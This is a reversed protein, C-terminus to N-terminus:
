FLIGTRKLKSNKKVFMVELNIMSKCYSKPSMYSVELIDIIQFGLTDMLNAVELFLPAKENYQILQVELIVVETSLITDVGGLLILKEAGQVDIKIMDPQPLQYKKIVSSLKTMQLNRSECNEDFYLTSNERFVSNGNGNETKLTSAYFVTEKEEDGLLEIFFPHKKAQLISTKDKNAEFLYFSSNPFVSEALDTWTGDRAGIDYIVRPYFNLNQLNILRQQYFNMYIVAVM